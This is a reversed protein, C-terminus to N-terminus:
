GERSEAATVRSLRSVAAASSYPSASFLASTATLYTSAPARAGCGSLALPIVRVEGEALDTWDVQAALDFIQAM